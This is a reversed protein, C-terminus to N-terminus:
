HKAPPKAEHGKAAEPAKPEAIHKSEAAPKADALPGGGGDFTIMVEVVGGPDHQTSRFTAIEGPLLITSSAEVAWVQVPKHDAGLSIARLRPVARQDASTNVVQGEVVLVLAGNEMHQQSHVNQLQLGAGPPEVPLGVTEYLLAAPPWAAVVAARGVYAGAVIGAVVAGLAAWGILARKDLPKRAPKVRSKAPPTPDDDEPESPFIPRREFPEDPRRFDDPPPPFPEAPESAQFWVHGCSACRVKRGASGVAADGVTYRKSCKPCTIIM